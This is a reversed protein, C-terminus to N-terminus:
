RLWAQVSEETNELLKRLRKSERKAAVIDIRLTKRGPPKWTEADYTGLVTLGADTIAALVDDLAYVRETVYNPEGRNVRIATEAVGTDRDFTSSWSTTFGGNTESWQQNEFFETVMRATIVDCYLVGDDRLANAMEGMAARVGNLELLFNLSDFLCTVYDFSRGFPLARMDAVVVPPAFQGKGAAAIMAPSLDCGFTNWGHQRLRKALMGTGCATDLHWFPKRALLESLATTVLLWRDYDVTSMIADYYRALDTFPDAGGM